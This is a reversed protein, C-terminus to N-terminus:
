RIRKLVRKDKIRGALGSMLRDHSVRDFFKSLDMDVVYTYGEVMYRKGQMVADHASKGPRVGCSYESFLSGFGTGPNEKRCRAEALRSRESAGDGIGRQVVAVGKVEM